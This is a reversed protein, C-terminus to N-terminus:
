TGAGEDIIKQYLERPQLRCNAEANRSVPFVHASSATLEEIITTSMLEKCKGTTLFSSAVKKKGM